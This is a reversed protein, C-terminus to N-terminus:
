YIWLTHVNFKVSLCASLLLTVLNIYLHLKLFLYLINRSFYISFDTMRFLLELDYNNGDIGVVKAAFMKM